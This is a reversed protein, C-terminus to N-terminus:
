PKYPVLRRITLQWGSSSNDINCAMNGSKPSGQHGKLGEVIQRSTRRLNRRGIFGEPEELELSSM